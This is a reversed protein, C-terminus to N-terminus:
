GDSIMEYNLQNYYLFLQIMYNSKEDSDSVLLKFLQMAFKFKSKPVNIFIKNCITVFIINIM